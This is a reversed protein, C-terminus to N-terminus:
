TAADPQVELGPKYKGEVFDDIGQFFQGKKLFQLQQNKAELWKWSEEYTLRSIEIGRYGEKTMRLALADKESLKTALSQVEEQLEILPVSRTVFGIREAEEGTFTDGTLSYYLAHRESMHGAVVRSVLGGPIGGWNIESLGFVAENAAIAIDCSGVITFAGGFCWGNIAAITPKPFHYLMTHRWEHSLRRMREREDLDDKLEHFYKKLDQGASFSEGAGTIVLVKTEADYHLEKLLGHMERHLTPSMANRQEPRDLTVTTVGDDTSVSLTELDRYKM